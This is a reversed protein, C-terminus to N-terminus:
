QHSVRGTGTFFNNNVASSGPFFNNKEHQINTNLPQRKTIVSFSYKHQPFLDTLCVSKEPSQFLINELKNQSSQFAWFMLLEERM